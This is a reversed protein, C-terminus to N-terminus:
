NIINLLYHIVTEQGLPTNMVNSLYWFMKKLFLLYYINKGLAILLSLRTYNCKMEEFWSDLLEYINKSLRFHTILADM